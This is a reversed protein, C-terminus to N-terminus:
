LGVGRHPFRIIIWDLFELYLKNQSAYFYYNRLFTWHQADTVQVLYYFVIRVFQLLPHLLQLVIAGVLASLLVLFLIEHTVCYGSIGSLNGCIFLIDFQCTFKIFPHDLYVVEELSLAIILIYEVGNLSVDLLLKFVEDSYFSDSQTINEVIDM